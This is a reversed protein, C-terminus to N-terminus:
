SAFGLGLRDLCRLWLNRQGSRDARDLSWMTLAIGTWRLPEPPFPVPRSQIMRLGTRETERGHLLDLAAAAFFRSAGVGLGTFGLAYGIRGQSCTGVFPAFRSCTDIVGGWQHTFRTGELQPFTAFFHGALKAFTAPRRLLEQRVASRYHYVVDYGGWLIRNDATLRYYHFQNAADGLGQRNRWGISDLAADSLPETVLAYDYVPVIFNRLRRLLPTFAGSALMIRHARVRGYGTHAMVDRPRPELREVPANEHIRVGARLCAARLGLALRAPDLMAVSNRSWSGGLYTPSHVEARAQRADLYVADHGLERAQATMTRLEEVQWPKTAFTLEGTRAFDCDIGYRRVSEEIGDLNEMGLRELTAAEPGWREIGNGIGHTLSSSCFGGNRGSAAWGCTNAELLVVNLGPDTEKAQLAAWLGTYGGGIVLLDAEITETLSPCPAPETNAELWFPRPIADALSRLAHTPAPYRRAPLLATM